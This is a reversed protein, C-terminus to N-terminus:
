RAEAPDKPPGLSAELDLLPQVSLTILGRRPRDLDVVVVIIGALLVAVVATPFSRKVSTLGIEYGILGLGAFAVAYLLLISSAPVHFRLADVNKAHLDILENLSQVFLGIPVSLPQLASAGMAQRWLDEHLRTSAEIAREFTADDDSSLHFSLRVALYERLLKQAEESYPQPLLRARLEATGIANADDLLLERRQEFLNTALSFSFGILIAFVGLTAAQTSTIVSLASDTEERRFRWGIRESVWACALFALASGLFIVGEDVDYFWDASM